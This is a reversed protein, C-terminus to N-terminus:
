RVVDAHVTQSMPLAHIIEGEEVMDVMDVQYLNIVEVVEQGMEEGRAMLPAKGVMVMVRTLHNGSLHGEGGELPCEMIGISTLAQVRGVVSGHVM